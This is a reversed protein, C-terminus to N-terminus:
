QMWLLRNCIGRHSLMAGKPRGTSGSTYLVYALNDPSVAVDVPEPSADLWSIDSGGLEILRVGQESLVGAHDMTDPRVLAVRVRADEALFAIRGSPYDPALPVYAGGAKLIALLSITLDLSRYMCVGVHTEPGVGNDRLTHALRNARS